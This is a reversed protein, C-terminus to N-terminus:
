KFAIYMFVMDEQNTARRITSGSGGTGYFVRFGKEIVELVYNSGVNVLLPTGRIAFSIYGYSGSTKDVQPWVFVATPEFDLVIDRSESGDGTYTGTVYHSHGAIKKLIESIKVGGLMEANLNTQLTGDKLAVNTQSKLKKLENEISTLIETADVTIMSNIYGCLEADAREDIIQTIGSEDAIIQAIALDYIQENRVLEPASDATGEILILDISRVSDTLDLRVVIRSIVDLSVDFYAPGEYMEFFRGNILAIGDLVSVQTETSQWVKLNDGGNKVGNTLFYSIYKSWDASGYDRDGVIFGLENTGQAVSDFPFSRTKM